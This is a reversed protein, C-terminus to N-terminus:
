LQEGRLHPGFPFSPKSVRTIISPGFVQSWVGNGLNFKGQIQNGDIDVQMLSANKPGICARNVDQANVLDKGKNISIRKPIGM